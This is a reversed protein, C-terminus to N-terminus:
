NTAQVMPRTPSYQLQAIFEKIAQHRITESEGSKQMKKLVRTIAPVLAHHRKHLYHYLPTTVLPPEQIRLCENGPIIKQSTAWPRDSLILDVRGELLLQLMKDADPTRTVQPMDKTLTTAYINGIRVAIRYKELDKISKVNYTKGCSILMGEVTNIPVDVRILNPYQPAIAAIRHVEGDTLGANSDALIRAAPGKATEITYGLKKYAAKLVALSMYSLPQDIYGFRLTQGAQAFVPALLFLIIIICHRM